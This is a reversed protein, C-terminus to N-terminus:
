LLKPLSRITALCHVGHSITNGLNDLLEMSVSFDM